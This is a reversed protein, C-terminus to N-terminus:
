GCEASAACVPPLDSRAMQGFCARTDGQNALRPCRPSTWCAPGNAGACSFVARGPQSKYDIELSTQGLARAGLLGDIEPGVPRVEARLGQLLPTSDPIIAVPIDGALDIYAAANQALTSDRLDTDCPQVCAALAQHHEVWELRRTRGLEVCAGPDTSVDAEQDVLALRSLTSWQVNHIPASLSPIPLDPGPGQLPPPTALPTAQLRALVRNWASQSLVLPGVGTAVVLALDAGTATTVEDGRKCCTQPIPSELDFASPGACGRLVVRTAPIEVPGTLGLFDPTSTATLEGGGLLDFHLVAFGAGALFADSAGQRPWFTLSPAGLMFQVSFNRLFDGGLVAPRAINLDVPLVGIRRLKARVASPTQADLIDFNRQAIQTTENAQRRFVTLPSSTDISLEFPGIGANDQYQANARLGGEEPGVPPALLMIPYSDLTCCQEVCGTGLTAMVFFGFLGTVIRMVVLGSFGVGDNM